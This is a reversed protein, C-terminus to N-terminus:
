PSFLIILHSSHIKSHHTWMPVFFYVYNIYKFMYDFWCYDLFFNMTDHCPWYIAFFFNPDFNLYYNHFLLVYPPHFFSIWSTWFLKQCVLNLMSYTSIQSFEAIKTCIWLEFLKNLFLLWWHFLCNVKVFIGFLTPPKPSKPIVM